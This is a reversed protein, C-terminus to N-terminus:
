ELVIIRILDGPPIAGKSIAKAMGRARNGLFKGANFTFKEYDM